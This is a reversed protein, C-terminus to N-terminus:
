SNGMLSRRDDQNVMEAMTDYTIPYWPGRRIRFYIGTIEISLEVEGLQLQRKM